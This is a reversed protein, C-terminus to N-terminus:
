QLDFPRCVVDHHNEWGGFCVFCYAIGGELFDLSNLFDTGIGAGCVPFGSVFTEHKEEVPGEVSSHQSLANFLDVHKLIM